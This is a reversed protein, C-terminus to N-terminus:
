HFFATCWQMKHMDFWVLLLKLIVNVSPIQSPYFLHLRNGSPCMSTIIFMSYGCLSYKSVLLRLPYQPTVYDPIDLELYVGIKILCQRLVLLPKQKIHHWHTIQLVKELALSWHNSVTSHETCYKQLHYSM